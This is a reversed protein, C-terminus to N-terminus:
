VVPIGSHEKMLRLTEFSAKLMIQQSALYAFAELAETQASSWDHSTKDLAILVGVPMGVPDHVPTGLYAKAGFFRAEVTHAIDSQPMDNFQMTTNEDCVKSAISGHYPFGFLPPQNHDLGHSARVFISGSEIDLMMLAILPTKLVRSALSVVAEFGKVPPGELLGLDHLDFSGHTHRGM